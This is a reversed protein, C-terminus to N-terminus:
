LDMAPLATSKYWTDTAKIDTSFLKLKAAVDLVTATNPLQHTNATNWAIMTSKITGVLATLTDIKEANVLQM